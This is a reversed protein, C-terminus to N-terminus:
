KLPKTIDPVNVIDMGHAEFARYNAITNTVIM